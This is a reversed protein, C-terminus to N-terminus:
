ISLDFNKRTTTNRSFLTKIKSLCRFSCKVNNNINFVGKSIGIIIEISTSITNESMSIDLNDLIKRFIVMVLKKKDAVGHLTEVFEMTKVLLLHSDSTTMSTTTSIDVVRKIYQDTLTGILLKSSYDNVDSINISM